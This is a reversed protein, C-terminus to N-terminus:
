PSRVRYFKLGSIGSADTFQYVGPAIETVPGLVTWNAIPLAINTSALATFSAGPVNTFSFGLGTDTSLVLSGLSPPAVTLTTFSADSGASTGASSSAVLRFHYQTGTALGSMAASVGTANTGAALTNTATFSAYNTTTGFEFHYDTAASGPVVDGNLTAASATVATAPQTTAVPPTATTFSQDAGASTGASSSAVLRFHHPTAAPLGSLAANVAIANTGAALSNTATFSGYNTTTGFEFWYDVAASGPTVAGNLTATSATIASAPQTTAVPPVAPASVNTYFTLTPLLMANTILIRYGAASNTDPLVAETATFVLVLKNSLVFQGWPAPLTFTNSGAGGASHVELLQTATFAGNTLLNNSNTENAQATAWVLNNSMAPYSQDLAWIRLRQTGGSSNRTVKLTAAQSGDVFQGPLTFELYAKASAGTLSYKAMVYGATAEDIDVNFNAGDRVTAWSGALVTSTPPLALVTLTAVSSTAAGYLNTVIVDFNGANTLALPNLTYSNTNAGVIDTGGKRWQYSLPMTGTATVTFTASGGIYNTTSLPQLTIAPPTPPINTISVSAVVSTAAGYLNTIIVDYNGTDNTSAPNFVLTANTATSLAGGGKRWQYVLPSSGSATVSLSVSSGAANTQGVPQLTIVPATGTDSAYSLTVQGKGGVGGSANYGGSSGGGPATGVSGGTSATSTGNAGNGGVPGAATGGTTTSSSANGGVGNTGAAGGGGGSRAAAVGAAGNGGANNFPSTSGGNGSTTGAGAAGNPTTSTGGGGGGGGVAIITTISPGSFSSSGGAGGPSTAVTTSGATGGNGVTITYNSGPVVAVAINQVYSGGAGGGGCRATSTSGGGGGGGGWSEVRVSTIGPPCTWTGSATFNTVVSIVPVIVALTANSSTASGYLNTVTVAFVGADNTTVNSLLYSTNTAGGIPSGGKSWQYSLPATGTASASLAVNAGVVVTLNTPQTTFAPVAPAAVTITVTASNTGANGDTITYTFADVGIFGANPTYTVNTGGNIVVSGNTGQTVDVITLTDGNADTDNALVNITVPTNSLTNASDANAVPPTPPIPGEVTLLAAASAVAGLTNSVVCDYFGAAGASAAFTYNSSTAGGIGVGDKRWQFSPAPTGWAAVSFTVNTGAAALKSVPEVTIAPRQNTEVLFKEFFGFTDPRLEIPSPFGAQVNATGYLYFSHQGGPVLLYPELRAGAARQLAYLPETQSPWVDDDASGHSVLMPAANANPYGVPSARRYLTRNDWATYNLFQNMQHYNPIDCAGYFVASCQVETSYGDYSNGRVPPEVKLTSSVVGVDDNTGTMALMSAMNCGWSFGLAGIKTKDINYTGADSKQKLWRVAQKADWLNYPWCQVTSSSMAYNIVMVFWGRAALEVAAEVERADSKDGNNGGGGHIVIVAPAAAATALNTPYYLDCLTGGAAAELQSIGSSYSTFSVDLNTTIVKKGYINVWAPLSTISGVANSVIVDYFGEYASNVNTASYSASIYGALNTGNRRWQYNLGAGRAEVSLQFDRAGTSAVALQRPHATVFPMGPRGVTFEGVSVNDIATTTIPDSTGQEDEKAIHWALWVEDGPNVALDRLAFELHNTLATAQPAIDKIVCTWGDTSTVVRGYETRMSETYNGNYTNLYRHTEIFGSSITGAGAPFVRYALAVADRNTSTAITDYAVKLGSLVGGTNNKLRLVANVSQSSFIDASTPGYASPTGGLARNTSGSVGLTNLTASGGVSGSNVASVTGPTTTTLNGTSVQGATLNAYWGRLTSNNAWAASSSAPLSDFTQVYTQGLAVENAGPANSVITIQARAPTTFQLAAGVIIWSGLALRTNM